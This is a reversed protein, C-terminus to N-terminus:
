DIFFLDVITTGSKRIEFGINNNKLNRKNKNLWKTLRRPTITIKTLSIVDNVNGCVHGDRSRSIAENIRLLQFEVDKDTAHNQEKDLVWMHKRENKKIYIKRPEFDNAKIQIMGFKNTDSDMTMTLTASVRSVIAKSGMMSNLKNLHHLYIVGFTKTIQKLSNEMKDILKTMSMYDNLELEQEDGLGGLVDIILLLRKDEGIQSKIKSAIEEITISNKFLFYLNYKSNLDFNLKELKILVSNPSSDNSYFLIADVNYSDRKIDLFDTNEIISKVLQLVLTTKGVKEAAGLVISTSDLLLNDIMFVSNKQQKIKALEELSIIDTM